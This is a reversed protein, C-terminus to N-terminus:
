IKGLNKLRLIRSKENELSPRKEVVASKNLVDLVKGDADPIKIGYTSLFTPAVDQLSAERLETHRYNRGSFLIIGDGWEIGMELELEPDDNLIFMEPSDLNVIYGISAYHPQFFTLIDPAEGTYPGHFISSNPLAGRVVVKGTEPDRIGKVDKLLSDVVSEYDKREVSGQPERDKLNVYISGRKGIMYAQTKKWDIKGYIYIRKPNLKESSFDEWESKPKFVLYGRDYLWKNFEFYKHVSSFGHDSLVIVNDPSYEDIIEGLYGDLKQYLKLLSDEYKEIEEPTENKRYPHKDDFFHWMYHSFRDSSIFVGFFIEPNEKKILYKMLKTREEITREIEYIFKDRDLHKAGEIDIRYEDLGPYDKLLDAPYTFGAADKSPSMMGGVMFGNVKEVPYTMPPNVVGVRYGYDSMFRWFAKARRLKANGPRRFYSGGVFETGFFDFVGHKGANKGTFMTTWACSSITLPTTHLPAFAGKEALAGFNKLKGEKVWQSIKDYPAGDWGVILTRNM